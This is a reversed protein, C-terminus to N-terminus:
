HSYAIIHPTVFILLERKNERVKRLSFLNGLVPLSGLFPIREVGTEQNKEYIGGLVLTQGDRIMVNTMMQRTSIAPVGLVIRNSPRDQNVALQLLVKHNPMVQPTVKLSLVAKKFAVSTAGSASTEQYPIEEGAEISATQQNETFLSPSSILEGKGTNELASLAMDLQAGNALTAVALVYRPVAESVRGDEDKSHTAFSVGLEREFDQDVSALRAEILVQKVPVDFQQILREIAPFNKVIDHVVIQNTRTDVRIAGRRSFTAHNNQVLRAVEEAKAYQIQWTHTELPEVAALAEQLRFEERKRKLMEHQPAVFWLQGKPWQCLGQSSLLLEFAEAPDVEQLQLSVMGTIAPSMALNRHTFRALIRVADTMRINKLDLSIKEAAQANGQEITCFVVFVLCLWKIKNPLSRM